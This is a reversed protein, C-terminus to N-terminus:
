RLISLWGKQSKIEGSCNSYSVQWFYVGASIDEANWKFSADNTTFIQKGYRNVIELYFSRLNESRVQFQDNLFDGNVTIVNPIFLTDVAFNAHFIESTISCTNRLVKVFYDGPSTITISSKQSILSISNDKFWESTTNKDPTSVTLQLTGNCLDGSSSILPISLPDINFSQSVQYLCNNPSTYNYNITYSGKSLQSVFLMPPSQGVVNSAGNSLAWTGGSYNSALPVANISPDCIDPIANISVQLSEKVFSRSAQYICGAASTYTYNVMNSGKPLNSVTLLPPSQSIANSVAPSLSWTGGSYNSTLPVNTTYNCVNPITDIVVQLSEKLVEFKQFVTCGFLSVGLQYQGPNASTVTIHDTINTNALYPKTSDARYYWQYGINQQPQVSLVVQTKGTTCVTNKIVGTTQGTPGNVVEIQMQGLYFCNPTQYTLTHIGIGALAPDFTGANVDTIGTGSWVGNFPYGKLNFPTVLNCVPPELKILPPPTVIYVTGAGLAVANSEKQAGIFFDNQDLAVSYGFYDIGSTSGTMVLLPVTNQWYYDQSQIVFAKGPGTSNFAGTVLINDLVDLSYGFSTGATKNVPLLKVNETGSVWNGQPTRLFIYIAGVDLTSNYNKGSAGVFIANDTLKLSTGFFSGNVTLPGIFPDVDPDSAQFTYKNKWNKAVSDYEILYVKDYGNSATLTGGELDLTPPLKFIVNGLAPDLDMTSDFAWQGTNDKKFFFLSGSVSSSNRLTPVIIWNSNMVPNGYGNVSKGTPMALTQFLAPSTFNGNSGKYIFIESPTYNFASMAVYDGYGTIYSGFGRDNVTTPQGTLKTVKSWTAGTKEYIYAAGRPNSDVTRENIATAFLFNGSHYLSTGLNYNLADKKKKVITQKMWSNDSQLTFAGVAVAQSSGSNDPFIWSCAIENQNYCSFSRVFLSSSGAPPAPEAYIVEQSVGSCWDSGQKSLILIRGSNDQLKASMYLKDGSAQYNVFFNVGPIGNVPVIPFSCTAGGGQWAGSAPTQYFLIDGNVYKFVGESTFEFDPGYSGTSGSNETLKAEYQYNSFTGSVDRFMYVSGVASPFGAVTACAIRDNVIKVGGIGFLLNNNGQDPNVVIQSPPLNNWEDAPQKHFVFFAGVSSSYGLDAAVITQEDPSIDFDYGFGLAGSPKLLTTETITSWGGTPKRFIYIGSNYAVNAVLIYHETVRVSAGFGMQAMPVSPKLIGVSGWTGDSLRQYLYVIGAGQFGLSDSSAAGVALIDNYVSVYGGFNEPYSATRDPYVNQFDTLCQGLLDLTLFLLIVAFLFKM